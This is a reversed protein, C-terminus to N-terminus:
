RVPTWEESYSRRRVILSVAECLYLWSVRLYGYARFRRPSHYVRLRHFYGIRGVKSLRYFLNCDEGAVLQENYGGVQEFASRRVFQCEGKALYVGLTFSTRIVANTWVHWARDAWGSEEPYIWLPVTAAVTNPRRDFRAVIKEFFRAQDPIRVDADMHLILRGTAAAAGLNRGIAINQKGTKQVLKLRQTGFRAQLRQVLEATGDSSNADSVIIELNFRELTDAFQELTPGLYDAENRTPIVISVAPTALDTACTDFTDPM